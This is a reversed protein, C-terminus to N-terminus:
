GNQIQTLKAMIVLVSFIPPLTLREVVNIVEVSYDLNLNQM